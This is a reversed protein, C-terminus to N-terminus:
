SDNVVSASWLVTGDSARLKKITNSDVDVAVDGPSTCVRKPSSVYPVPLSSSSDVLNFASTLAALALLLLVAVASGRIIYGGTKNKTKMHKRRQAGERFNVVRHTRMLVRSNVSGKDM